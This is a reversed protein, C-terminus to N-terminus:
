SEEYKKFYYMFYEVFCINYCYYGRWGWCIIFSFYECVYYMIYLVNFLFRFFIINM